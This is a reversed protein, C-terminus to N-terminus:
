SRAPFSSQRAAMPSRGSARQALSVITKLGGAALLGLLPEVPYRYRAHPAVLAVAALLLGVVVLALFAAVGPRQERAGIGLALGVVGVLALLPITPGLRAPQFLNM